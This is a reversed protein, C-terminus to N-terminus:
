EAEAMEVLALRHLNVLDAVVVMAPTSHAGRV